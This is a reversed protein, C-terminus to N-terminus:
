PFVHCRRLREAFGFPTESCEPCSVTGLPHEGQEFGLARAIITGVVADLTGAREPATLEIRRFLNTLAENGAACGL